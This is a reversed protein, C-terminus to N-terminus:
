GNAAKPAPERQYAVSQPGYARLFADVADAAVREITQEDLEHPLANLMRREVFEGELMGKLHMAMVWGNARRLKGATIQEGLFIAIRMWAQRLGREYFTLGIRTDAPLGAIMRSIAIPRDSTVRRLFARALYLLAEDLESFTRVQEAIAEVEGAIDLEVSAVFLEEKSKFYGYLTAKSGGLRKSIEAMSAREFGQEQFVSRAAALIARRRAETRVRL